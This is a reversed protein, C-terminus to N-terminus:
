LAELQIRVGHLLVTVLSVRVSSNRTVTDQIIVNIFFQCLFQNLM